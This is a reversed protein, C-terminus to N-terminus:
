RPNRNLLNELRAHLYKGFYYTTIIAVLGIPWYLWQMAEDDAGAALAAFWLFTAIGLGVCGIAVLFLNVAVFEFVKKV